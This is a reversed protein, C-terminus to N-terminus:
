GRPWGAQVFLKHQEALDRAAPRSSRGIGSWFRADRGCRRGSTKKASSTRPRKSSPSRQRAPRRRHHLRQPWQRPVAPRSRDRAVGSRHLGRSALFEDIRLALSAAGIGAASETRAPAKPLAAASQRGTASAPRLTAVPTTEYALRKINLLHRPSINDSTINGGYGGCGLTMSPDLGTTLGISGLTTPTNVVIRFAPKKLGFQLIVDDNRSHISMTHGMGGYRLIQKCRECGERWDSM